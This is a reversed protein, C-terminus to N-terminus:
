DRLIICTVTAQAYLKGSDDTLTCDAVGLRKSVNTVRADAILDVDQPVPRFYKVHLDITTSGVGQEVTTHVACAGASDLVTAAFGGHVPGFPNTHHAGARAIFRLFGHEAAVCRMPIQSAMRAHPTEGAIMAKFYDLGTYDNWNNSM